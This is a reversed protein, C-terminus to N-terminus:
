SEVTGYSKYYIKNILFYGKYFVYFKQKKLQDVNIVKLNAPIHKRNIKEVIYVFYEKKCEACYTTGDIQKVKKKTKNFKVHEIDYIRIYLRESEIKNLQISDKKNIKVVTTQAPLKSYLLSYILVILYKIKGM